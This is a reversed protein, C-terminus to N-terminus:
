NGDDDDDPTNNNDGNSNSSSLDLRYGYIHESNPYIGHVVVSGDSSQVIKNFQDATKLMTNNADTMIFGEKVGANKFAGARINTVKVGSRLGNQNAEQQSLTTLTAGLTKNALDQATVATLDGLSNKLVMNTTTEKGNRLYTVTLKDGPKKDGMVSSLDGSTPVSIGNVKTIIDGSKIGAAAAAGDKAVDTVCLGYDRDKVNYQAKVKDPATSLDMFSLGMYGRQVAGYKILDAAVKKVINVPIAFSYGSYAGTPSAIASNIGILEGNTNILAGGSNGPNVAADTQLYSQVISSPANGSERGLGIDRAKASIIGATVTVDLTFPYGIALVWQGLKVNDSNGYVLYPLGKADIKIVALDSSPDTGIVRATYVKRNSTTVTIKDADQVVHNNTIIYGDDTILVGSGSARQSPIRYTRPGNGFPSGGFPNGFLQSFPDDDDGGNPNTVTKEKTQIKIHVVAPTASAAAATFDMSNDAADQKGYFSAYNVPLKGEEQVGAYKTEEYKAYGWVSGFATAASIFVVLLLNKFKM